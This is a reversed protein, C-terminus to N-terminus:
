IAGPLVPGVFTVPHTAADERQLVVEHPWPATLQTTTDPPTVLVKTPTWHGTGASAVLFQIIAHASGGPALNVTPTTAVKRPLEYRPGFTPDNPGVLDVGPFGKLRCAQQGSNTFILVAYRGEASGQVDLTLSLDTPRCRVTAIGPDAPDVGASGASGAPTASGASAATTAASGSPATPGPDSALPGTAVPESGACATLGLGACAALVVPLRHLLRM